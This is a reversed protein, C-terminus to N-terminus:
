DALEARIEDEWRPQLVEVVWRRGKIVPEGRQSALNGWENLWADRLSRSTFAYAVVVTAQSTRRSCRVPRMEGDSFSHKFFFDFSSCFRGLDQRVRTAREDLTAQAGSTGARGVEQTGLAVSGLLSVGVLVGIILRKM